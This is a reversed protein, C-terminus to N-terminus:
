QLCREFHDIKIQVAVYIYGLHISASTGSVGYDFMKLELYPLLETELSVYFYYEKWICINSKPHLAVEEKRLIFHAAVKIPLIKLFTLLKLAIVHAM